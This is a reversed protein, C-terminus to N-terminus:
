TDIKVDTSFYDIPLNDEENNEVLVESGSTGENNNTNTNGLQPVEEQHIVLASDRENSTVADLRQWLNSLLRSLANTAVKLEDVNELRDLREDEWWFGLGRNEEQNTPVPSQNNLLASVVNDVSSHGFSYFSAHSNSSAPTALIAIQTTPSLLCLESAKHFLGKRRKTFAVSKANEKEIKEIKIKRKTGGVM